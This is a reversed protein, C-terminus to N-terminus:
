PCCLALMGTPGNEGASTYLLMPLPLLPVQVSSLEASAHGRSCSRAELSAKRDSNDGIKPQSINAM